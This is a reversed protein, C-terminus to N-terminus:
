MKLGSVGTAYASSPPAAASPVNAPQQLWPQASPASPVGGGGYASPALQQQPLAYPAAAAPNYPSYAAAGQPQAAGWGAGMAMPAVPIGALEADLGALEADLEAQNVSGVDFGASVAATFDQTDRLMENIEWQREAVDDPDPLQANAAAVERSVQEMAQLQAVSNQASEKAFSV